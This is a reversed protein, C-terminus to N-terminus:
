TIFLVMHEVDFYRDGIRLGRPEVGYTKFGLSRYLDMAAEQGCVVTLVVQEVGPCARIRGLLAALVARGL